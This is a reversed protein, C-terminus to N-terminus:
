RNVCPTMRGAFPVNEGFAAAHIFADVGDFPGLAAFGEARALNQQSRHVGVSHEGSEIALL